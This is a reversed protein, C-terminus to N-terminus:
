FRKYSFSAYRSALLIRGGVGEYQFPFCCKIQVIKKGHYNKLRIYLQQERMCLLLLAIFRDLLKWSEM